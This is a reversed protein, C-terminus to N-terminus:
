RRPPTREWTTIYEPDEVVEGIDRLRYSGPPAPLFASLDPPLSYLEGSRCGELRLTIGDDPDTSTVTGFFQELHPGDPENFTLGVLM